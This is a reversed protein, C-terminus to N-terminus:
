RVCRRAVVIRDLRSTIAENEAKLVLAARTRKRRVGGAPKKMNGTYVDEAVFEPHEDAFEKGLQLFLEVQLLRLLDMVESLSTREDLTGSEELHPGPINKIRNGKKGVWPTYLRYRM